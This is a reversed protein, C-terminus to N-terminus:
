EEEDEQEDLLDSDDVSAAAAAGRTVTTPEWGKGTWRAVAGGAGLYYRGVIREPAAPVTTIATEATKGTGIYKTGPRFAGGTEQFDGAERATNYAQQLAMSSSLAPNAKKLAQAEAAVNFAAEELEAGKLGAFDRKILTEAQSIETKNPSAVSRGTGGKKLREEREQLLKLRARRIENQTDLQGLRRGRYERTAKATAYKDDLDAKEKATLAAQRVREVLEPSYPQKAFPSSEGTYIEWLVNARQWSAQDNVGTLLQGTLDARERTLKIANLRATSRSAAAAEERSRLLAATKALEQAKSTLGAGASARALRDLNDAMSTPISPALAQQELAAGADGATGSEILEAAPALSFAQQMLEAMRRENALALEAASAQAEKLRRNAPAEAIRALAEQENVRSARELRADELFARTGLPTGYLDAM